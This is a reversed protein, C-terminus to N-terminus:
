LSRQYEHIAHVLKRAVSRHAFFFSQNLERIYVEGLSRGYVESASSKNLSFAEGTAERFDITLDHVDIIDFDVTSRARLLYNPFLYYCVGDADRMMPTGEQACMYDFVGMDLFVRKMGLTGKTSQLAWVRRSEMVEEFTNCFAAYSERQREDTMSELSIQCLRMQSALHAVVNKYQSAASSLLKDNNRDRLASKLGKLIRYVGEAEQAIGLCNAYSELVARKEAGMEAELARGVARKEKEFSFEKGFVFKLYNPRTKATYYSVMAEYTDSETVREFFGTGPVGTCIFRGRLKTTAEHAETLTRHRHHRRAYEKIGFDSYTMNQPVIIRVSPAVQQIKHM